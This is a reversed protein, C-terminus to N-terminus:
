NLLELGAENASKITAERQLSNFNAPVTIVAQKIENNSNYIDANTKLYGLIMSAVDEPLYKKEENGIKIVYQPKGTKKDEIVKVM